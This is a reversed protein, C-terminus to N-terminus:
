RGEKGTFRPPRHQLFATIGECADMTRACRVMAASEAGLQQELTAGWADRLLRRIQGFAVTAGVALSAVVTEVEAALDADPVVRTVLGWALAEAAGLVRGGITMEQARRLGILRPLFWTTGADGSLGLRPFGATFVSSAAALVLDAVCVLGLGGGAVAGQVAAVVPVELGALRMLARHYDPMMEALATDLDGTRGALHNLDGGVTFAQGDAALLVVRVSRDEACAEVAAGLATVMAVDIANQAAPRALRIRAVGKAVTYEVRRERSM